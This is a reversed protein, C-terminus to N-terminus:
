AMQSTDHVIARLLPNQIHKKKKKEKKILKLKHSYLKPSFLFTTNFIITWMIWRSYIAEHFSSWKNSVYEGDIGKEVRSSELIQTLFITIGCFTQGV